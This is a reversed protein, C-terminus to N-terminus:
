ATGLPLEAAIMFGGDPRDGTTLSGGVADVRERM